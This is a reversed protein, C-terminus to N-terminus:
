DGELRDDALRPTLAFYMRWYWDFGTQSQVEKILRESSKLVCALRPDGARRHSRFLRLGEIKGAIWAAARGHRFAVIGWLVQSVAIRWGFTGLDRGTYHRALLLLQNRSINRVTRASWAGSTASGRHRAVARPEYLGTHGKSACRLGFDVDELYSEFAEDLGGAQLFASRRVVMATMPAFQIRRGIQWYPGDPRGSGCRLACGGLNIADFTGDILNPDVASLSRGTVFSVSEDALPALSWQLWDANLEVDNNLIAVVDAESAEVGANVAPAFGRNTPLRLVRAGFQEAIAVSNDVSGNDVVWIADFARTQSAITPFLSKLLAAGNWNPIVAAVRM